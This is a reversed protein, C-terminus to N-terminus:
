CLVFTPCKLTGGRRIHSAPCLRPGDCGCRPIPQYAHSMGLVKRTHTLYVIAQVSVSKGNFAFTSLQRLGEVLFPAGSTACGGLMTGANNIYTQFLIITIGILANVFHCSVIRSQSRSEGRTM